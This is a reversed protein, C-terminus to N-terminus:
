LRRGCADALADARDTFGYAGAALFFGGGKHIMRHTSWEGDTRGIVVAAACLRENGGDFQILSVIETDNVTHPMTARFEAESIRKNM